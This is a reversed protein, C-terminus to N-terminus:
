GDHVSPDIACPAELISGSSITSSRNRMGSPIHSRMSTSNGFRRRRFTPPRGGSGQRRTISPM